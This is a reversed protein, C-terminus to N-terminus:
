GAPVVQSSGQRWNFPLPHVASKVRIVREYALIISHLNISPPLYPERSARMQPACGTPSSRKGGTQTSDKARPLFIWDKDIVTALKYNELLASAFGPGFSVTDYWRRVAQKSPNGTLVVASFDRNRLRELLPQEFGPIHRQLLQVMWPDLVYPYQGALAPIVPNESLIPKNTPGIAEIVRRFQHPHYWASWSRAHRFLPIAAVLMALTLAYIGLRRQLQSTANAVFAALLIVSAVQLDLLHNSATGPSGFIIITLALTAVLFM